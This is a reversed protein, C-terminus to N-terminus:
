PQYLGGLVADRRAGTVAPLNGSLGNLRRWALWAFAAAEVWDPDLGTTATSLVARPSLLATLRQMLRRNHAGGGCVLIQESAPASRLIAEAISRATLELLSAQVDEPPLKQLEAHRQAWSLRFYDRGTSKPAPAAFYPDALWAQLLSERATGRAAWAGDRDYTQQLHLHIWEDMLGNGPGTDFGFVRAQPDAPLVTINAIGGINLVARAQGQAFVAQHFAPVLPAGQGGLAMDARRLDGVTAIGTRVAIRNPDGLQLSTALTEPDHFVTQGHSGIALIQGPSLDTSQLLTLAAEAFCDGVAADLRAVDRLSIARDPEAQLALLEARLPAPYSHSHSAVVGQWRGAEDFRCIAADVADLSTGSILGLCLSSSM